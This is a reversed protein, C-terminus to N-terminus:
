NSQLTFALCTADASLYVALFYSNFCGMGVFNDYFMFEMYDNKPPFNRCKQFLPHCSLQEGDETFSEPEGFYIRVM